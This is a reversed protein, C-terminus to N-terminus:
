KLIVIFIESELLVLNDITLALGSSNSIFMKMADKYFLQRKLLWVYIFAHIASPIYDVEQIGIIRYQRASVFELDLLCNIIDPCGIQFYCNLAVQLIEQTYM